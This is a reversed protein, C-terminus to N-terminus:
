HATKPCGATSSFPGRFLGMLLDIFSKCQMVSIQFDRIPTNWSPPKGCYNDLQTRKAFFDIIALSHKSSNLVESAIAVDPKLAFRNNCSGGESFGGNSEHGLATCCPSMHKTDGNCHLITSCTVDAGHSKPFSNSSCAKQQTTIITVGAFM